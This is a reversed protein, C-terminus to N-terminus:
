KAKVVAAVAVAVAISIQEVVFSGAVPAAAVVVIGLLVVVIRSRCCCHWRDRQFADLAHQQVTWVGVVVARSSM